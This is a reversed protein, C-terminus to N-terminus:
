VISMNVLKLSCARYIDHAGTKGEPVRELDYRENELESIQEVPKGSIFWTDQGATAVCVSGSIAGRLLLTVSQCTGTDAPTFSLIVRAVKSSSDDDGANAFAAVKRDNVNGALMSVGPSSSAYYASWGGDEDMWAGREIDTQRLKERCYQLNCKDWPEKLGEGLLDKLDEFTEGKKLANM